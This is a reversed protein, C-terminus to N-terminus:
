RATIIAPLVFAIVIGLFIIIELGLLLQNSPRLRGGRWWNGIRRDEPRIAFSVMSVLLPSGGAKAGLILHSLLSLLVVSWAGLHALYWGRNLEGTPLWEEQMMRGTILAFTVAVLMLTNALRQWARWNGQSLQALSKKHLLRRDGWHFCYLAFFPFLLLLVLAITGHLGQIDPIKPLPLAGWRGDYTNYVWFGSILALLALIAIAGHALRLLLPQYPTSKAM